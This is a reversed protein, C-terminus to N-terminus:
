GFYYGEFKEEHTTEISVAAAAANTAATAATIVFLAALYRRRQRLFVFTLMWSGSLM